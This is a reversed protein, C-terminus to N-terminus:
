SPTPEMPTDALNRLMRRFILAHLPYLAYWYVLGFLGRPKFIATQRLQCDSGHSEIEFQLWARGPLKMEAHLRLLRGPEIAEVRWFDLPDGVALKEPNRRGRRVGVGGVLLDLFGRLSWLWDFGYWGTEGGIREIAAFATAPDSDVRTVRSDVIRSGFVQGGFGPQSRSSSLADFWITEAFAWEEHLLARRIADAATRPRVTFLQEPVPNDVVTENRVSDILERGVRAYLPTILGLWLSSL